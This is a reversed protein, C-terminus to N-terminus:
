GTPVTVVNSPHTSHHSTGTPVVVVTPPSSGAGTTTTRTAPPSYVPTSTTQGAAGSAVTPATAPPTTHRVTRSPPVPLGPLDLAPLPPPAFGQRILLGAAATLRTGAALLDLRATTYPGRQNGAAATALAQLAASEIRLASRLMVLAPANRAPPGLRALRILAAREIRAASGAAAARAPLSGSGLRKLGNRVAAVPALDRGIATSLQADPGPPLVSVGSVAGARVLGYCSSLSAAAPVNAACIFAIDSTTSPVVFAVLLGGGSPTWQYRRATHGAIRATTSSVPQGYRAVLQPPVGGPIAASSALTGAALIATPSTLVLRPGTLMDAVLADTSPAPRAADRWPRQYRVTVPGSSVTKLPDGTSVGTHSGVVLVAGILLAAAAAILVMRRAWFRGSAVRDPDPALDADAISYAGNADGNLGEGYGSPTARVFTPARELSEAPLDALALVAEEILETAQGHRDAPTIALGRLIVEDLGLCPPEFWEFTPAPAELHAMTTEADTDRPFPVEGTLCHYLVATLSYVDAAGTLGLGCLQEPSAYNVGGWAIGAVSVGRPRKVASFAALHPVGDADIQITAPRIEAHVLGAAHAADLAGAVPELWRITQEASLGGSVMWDLLTGGEVVESAVYLHGDDLGVDYTSIVNPHEFSAIQAGEWLVRRVFPQDPSHVQKFVKLLVPTGASVDEAAFLEAPMGFGRPSVDTTSSGHLDIIRYGGIMDGAALATATAM